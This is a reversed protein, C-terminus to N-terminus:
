WGDRPLFDLYKFDHDYELERIPLRELYFFIYNDFNYLRRLKHM